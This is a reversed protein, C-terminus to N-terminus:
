QLKMQLVSYLSRKHQGTVKVRVERVTVSGRVLGLQVSVRYVINIALEGV